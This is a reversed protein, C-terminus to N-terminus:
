HTDNDYYIIITDIFIKKSSGTRKIQLELLSEEKPVNSITGLDAAEYEENNLNTKEAIVLGTEREVIRANYTTGKKEVKTIVEIYDILGINKSGPYVFSSVVSYSSSKTNTKPTITFFNSRLIVTIPTHSSILNNLETQDQTTLESVFEIQIEDNRMHVGKLDTSISSDIIEQHFQSEKISGSFDTSKSKIYKM